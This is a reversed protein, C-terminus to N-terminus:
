PDRVQEHSSLNKLLNRAPDFEVNRDNPTPNLYYTFRFSSGEPSAGGFKVDGRVKGYRASVVAGHENTVTRVRFVYSMRESYDNVNVDARHGPTDQRIKRWTRTTQYGGEPAERPSTFASGRFENSAMRQIGDLPNAFNLTMTAANDVRNSWYGDVRVVLDSVEGKGAPHVWDAAVLDFGYAEGSKPILTEVRKAYMPVPNGVNRLVLALIPNWPEWRDGVVNTFMFDMGMTPYYGEKRAACYVSPNGEAEASCMGNTDTQGTISFPRTGWGEGAPINKSFEIGVAANAVPMGQEDVVRVSVRGVHYPSLVSGVAALAIACVCLFSPITKM